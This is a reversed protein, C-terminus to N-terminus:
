RDKAYNRDKPNSLLQEDEQGDEEKTKQRSMRKATHLFNGCNTGGRVIKQQNTKHIFCKAKSIGPGQKNTAESEEVSEDQDCLGVDCLDELDDQCDSLDEDRAALSGALTSFWQECKM